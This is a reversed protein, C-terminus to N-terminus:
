RKRTAASENGDEEYPPITSQIYKHVDEFQRVIGDKTKTTEHYAENIIPTSYNRPLTRLLPDSKFHNPKKNDPPLKM